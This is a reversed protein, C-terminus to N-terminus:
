SIKGKRTNKIQTKMSRYLSRSCDGSVEVTGQHNIQEYNRENTPHFNAEKRLKKAMKSNM